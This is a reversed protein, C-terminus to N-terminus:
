NLAKAIAQIIPSFDGVKREIACPYENHSHHLDKSYHIDCVVTCGTEGYPDLNLIDQLSYDYKWQFNSHPLPFKSMISPYLSNMDIDIIHSTAENPDYWPCYENNAKAYRHSIQSLGGRKEDEYTLFMDQDSLLELPDQGEEMMKKKWYCKALGPLGYFHAPDLEQHELATKRYAEWIDALLLVDTTLYLDHYDQFTKCGMMNFVKKAHEYDEDSIPTNSLEDYFWKKRPLCPINFSNKGNAFSYPYIGKQKLVKLKEDGLHGYYHELHHFQKENLKDETEKLNQVHTELKGAMFAYSDIFRFKGLSFSIFKETNLPICDFARKETAYKAVERIMLQSDYGKM